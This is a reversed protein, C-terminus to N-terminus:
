YGGAIVRYFFPGPGVANTDKFSLTTRFPSSLTTAITSFAPQAALNTSCQLSYNRSNVCQWTVTAGSISNSISTMRLVSAANTPNTGAEAEQFNDMGDGDSDITGDVSLGYQQAFYFPLISSAAQYEYAGIDVFGDITRPNGDLDTQISAPNRGSNICPSNSQLHYDGNACDVFSPANTIIIYFTGSPKPLTCCNQFTSGASYNSATGTSVTNYYIICNFVSSFGAQLGGAGGAANNGIITCNMVGYPGSGSMYVGGYANSYNSTVLCGYLSSWYTGGGMNTSANQTIICNTLVAQHAGGGMSAVNNSLLCSTLTVGSVGGGYNSSVNQLVSCSTLTGCTTEYSSGLGFAGGGFFYASNHTLICNTAISNSCCLLGGGSDEQYSDGTNLTAGNSLTFGSIVAYNTLYVCRVPKSGIGPNGQIVTTTPGSVSQVTVAKGIVVRNTLSGYVVRGGTNYIGNTVLILDGDTATDIATQIDTAATSWNTFPAAPSPNAVNVYFTTAGARIALLIAVGLLPLLEMTKM